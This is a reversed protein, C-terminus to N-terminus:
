FDYDSSGSESSSEGLEEEAFELADFGDSGGFEVLKAIQCSKPKCSVGKSGNVDYHSLVVIFRCESGNGVSLKRLEEESFRKGASNYISPPNITYPENTGRKFGSSKMKIKLVFSGDDQKKYPKRGEGISDIQSILKHTEPSDELKLDVAYNGFKDTDVLNFWKIEGIPTTLQLKKEKMDNEM